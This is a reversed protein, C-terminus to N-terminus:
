EGVTSRLERMMEGEILAIQDVIDAMRQFLDHQIRALPEPTSAILNIKGRIETQIAQREEM